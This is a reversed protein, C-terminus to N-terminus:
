LTQPMWLRILIVMPFEASQFGHVRLSQAHNKVVQMDPALVRFECIMMAERYSNQQKCLYNILQNCLNNNIISYSSLSRM